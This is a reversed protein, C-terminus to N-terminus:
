GVIVSLLSKAGLLTNILDHWPIPPSFTRLSSVAGVKTFKYFNYLTHIFLLNNNNNNFIIIIIIIGQFGYLSLILLLLSSRYGQQRVSPTMRYPMFHSYCSDFDPLGPSLLNVGIPLTHIHWGHVPIPILTCQLFTIFFSKFITRLFQINIKM